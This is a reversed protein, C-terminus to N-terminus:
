RILASAFGTVLAGTAAAPDESETAARVLRSGIIIGQAGADAAAAGQEPTGIGFGLAVPLRTNAAVRALLAALGDGGGAREGTVGAVSVTYVFGRALAGIAAL